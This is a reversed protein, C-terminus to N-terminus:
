GGGVHKTKLDCPNRPVRAVWVRGDYCAPFYVFAESWATFQLAGAGTMGGFGVEFPADLEADTLTCSIIVDGAACEKIEQRWTTVDEDIDELM